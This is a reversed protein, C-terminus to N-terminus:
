FDVLTGAGEKIAKQYIYEAAAVDEVAIGLSKFLTIEQDSERGIIRKLLLEGIEGRIHGDTIVGERKPVLFDGAENITSERRDVFLKSKIVAASDLERKQPQSSGAANIHAGASIWAGRLIPEATSTVTCIIDAGAVAEEASRMPEIGSQWTEAFAVAHDYNRSWIRIRRLERVSQIAQLHTRAQTGSGLIALDGANKRALLNTAVGSVAATRIATIETADMVALLQGNKTEFLLVAGLHSDFETGENGPFVSIVKVGMSSGLVSPMTGLFGSKDLTAIITRLPLVGEGEALRTLAKEMVSICERMPLLKTVDERKLILLKM